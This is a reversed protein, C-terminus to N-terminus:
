SGEEDLFGRERALELYKYAQSRSVHFTDAVLHWSAVGPEAQERVVRAVDRLREDTVRNRRRPSAFTEEKAVAEDVTLPVAAFPGTRGPSRAATACAMAVMRTLPLRRIEVGSLSPGAPNRAVRVAEVVPEGAVVRVDVEVTHEHPDHFRATFAEPLQYGRSSVDGTGTEWEIGIRM